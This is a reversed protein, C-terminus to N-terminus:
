AGHCFVSRTQPAIRLCSITGDHHGHRQKSRPCGSRVRRLSQWHHRVPRCPLGVVSKFFTPFINM